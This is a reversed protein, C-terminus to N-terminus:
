EKVLIILSIGNLSLNQVYYDGTIRGYENFIVRYYDGLDFNFSENSPNIIM